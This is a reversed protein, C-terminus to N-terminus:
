SNVGKVGLAEEATKEKWENLQLNNAVMKIVKKLWDNEILTPM